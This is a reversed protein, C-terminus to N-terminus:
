GFNIMGDPHKEWFEKLLEFTEEKPDLFHIKKDLDRARQRKDIFAMTEELSHLEITPYDNIRFLDHFDDAYDYYL